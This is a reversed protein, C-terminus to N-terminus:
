LGLLSDASVGYRKCLMALRDLRPYTDASEWRRIDRSRLARGMGDAADEPTTFGARKRARILRKAFREDESM